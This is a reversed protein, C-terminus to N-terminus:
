SGRPLKRRFLLYDGFEGSRIFETRVVENPDDPGNRSSSNPENWNDYVRNLILWDATRIDAALRSNPRNASGPNMELFYTSARLQPLLHYLFTDNYNTRRLDAPGVFLRDGPAAMREIRDLLTGTTRTIPVTAMPICRGNRELMCPPPANPNLAAIVQGCVYAPLAPVLAVVFGAAAAVAIMPKQRLLLFSTKSLLVFLSIPLIALSAFAAYRVHMEDVRQIAQHSLSVAFLAAGLLLRSPILHPQRRLVIVGGAINIGSAIFHVTLLGLVSAPATSLSLHRGENGCFVPFLLLNDLVQQPGAAVVLAGLPLLGICMGGLYRLKVSRMMGLFLPLTGLVVAPGLDPRFLLAAAALMGGFFGRGRPNPKSILFISWLACAIGGMWAYAVVGLNLSVAGSFLTAGAALTPGWRYAICFVAGFILLRYVLGTGRESLISPGFVAYVGSLVYINAPGYFTEFDRYPLNGKLILEPYVLLSGEDMTAAPKDFGHLLPLLLAVLVLAAVALSGRASSAGGTVTCNARSTSLPERENLLAEHAFASALV